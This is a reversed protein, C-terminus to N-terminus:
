VRRPETHRARSQRDAVGSATLDLAPSRHRGLHQQSSLRTVVALLRKKPMHVDPEGLVILPLERGGERVALPRDLEVVGNLMVRVDPHETRILADRRETM